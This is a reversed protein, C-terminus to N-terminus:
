AAQPRPILVSAEDAERTEVPSLTPVGPPNMPIGVWREEAVLEAIAHARRQGLSAAAGEDQPLRVSSREIHLCSMCEIDVTGDGNTRPLGYSHM